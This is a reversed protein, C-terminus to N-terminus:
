SLGKAIRYAQGLAPNYQISNADSFQPMSLPSGQYSDIHAWEHSDTEQPEM